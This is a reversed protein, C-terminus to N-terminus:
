IYGKNKGRKKIIFDILYVFLISFTAVFIGNLMYYAFPSNGFIIAGKYSNFGLLLSVPGFGIFISIWYIIAMKHSWKWKRRVEIRM